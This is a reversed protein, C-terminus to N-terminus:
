KKISGGGKRKISRSEIINSVGRRVKKFYGMQEKHKSVEIYMMSDIAALFEDPNMNGKIRNCRKCVWVKNSNSRIGGRSKPILHDVTRSYEDIVCGCFSCRDERVSINAGYTRWSGM